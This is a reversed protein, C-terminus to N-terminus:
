KRTVEQVSYFPSKLLFEKLSKLRKKPSTELKIAKPLCDFFKNGTITTKKNLFDLDHKEVYHHSRTNYPHSSNRIFITNKFFAFKNTEYIFLSYVTLINLESFHQKLQILM